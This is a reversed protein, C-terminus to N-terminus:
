VQPALESQSLRSEVLRLLYKPTVDIIKINKTCRINYLYILNNMTIPINGICLIYDIMEERSSRYLKKADEPYDDLWDSLVADLNHDSFRLRFKSRIMAPWNGNKYNLHAQDDLIKLMTWESTELSAFVGNFARSAWDLNAWDEPFKYRLDHEVEHWGESLITRIQLEFTKDVMPLMALPIQLSQILDRPIEFILNYRTPGFETKDPIDISSSEASYKFKKCILDKALNIDDSFYLCIRIGLIDKIKKEFGYKGPNKEIKRQLSHQSKGRQFIRFFIGASNLIEEIRRAIAKAESEYNM